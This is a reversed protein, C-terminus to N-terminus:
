LVEGFITRLRGMFMFAIPTMAEESGNRMFRYPRNGPHNVRPGYFQVGERAWFFALSEVNTAEIVHPDAGLELAPAYDIGNGFGVTVGHATLMFVRGSGILAGPHPDDDGGILGQATINDEIAQELIKGSEWVWERESKRLAADAAEFKAILEKAGFVEVM